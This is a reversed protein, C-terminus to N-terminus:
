VEIFSLIKCEKVIKEIFINEYVGNENSEKCVKM